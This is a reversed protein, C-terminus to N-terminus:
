GSLDPKQGPLTSARPLDFGSVKNGRELLPDCETTSHTRIEVSRGIGVSQFYTVTIFPSPGVRSLTAPLAVVAPM